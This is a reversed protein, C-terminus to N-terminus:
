LEVDVLKQLEEPTVEKDTVDSKEIIFDIVKDELLSLQLQQVASPNNKFYARVQEEQGQYRRAENQILMEIEQPEVQIEEKKAIAQVVLALLVRRKAIKEYEKKLDKESLNKEKDTLQEPNNEKVQKYQALISELERDISAKPLEEVTDKYTKELYDLIDRKLIQRSTAATEHQQQEMILNRVQEISEMGLKKAFEDDLEMEVTNLVDKVTVKFLADKGALDPAQYEDPFKVNVDVEEGKKSGILQDEFGPIFTNSGLELNYDNGAGGPFEVGDVSGVFDIVLTDGKRSKRQRKLPETGKQGGSMQRLVEDAEEPKSPVVNRTYKKKKSIEKVEIHPAVEFKIVIKIDKDKATFAEDAGDFEPDTFPQDDPYDDFMQKTARNIAANVADQHFSDAYKKAIVSHPVKGKRFGPLQVSKAYRKIDQDIQNQIYEKPISITFERQLGKNKTQEIKM